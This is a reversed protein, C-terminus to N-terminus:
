NTSSIGLLLVAGDVYPVFGLRRTRYQRLDGDKSCLPNRGLNWLGAHVSCLRVRDMSIREIAEVSQAGKAM